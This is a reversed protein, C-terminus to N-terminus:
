NINPKHIELFHVFEDIYKQHLEKNGFIKSKKEEAHRRCSKGEEELMMTRLAKAISYRTFKGGDENREVKVGVKIEEVVMANLEQESQFPLLILPCGFQLSEIMSSWGCHTLFGGICKHELIKLQPAWSNWIIGRKNNSEIDDNPSNQMKLAWFYPCNSLELGMAIEIFEEDSLKVESGFAVYIVSRKEQEDLWKLITSWNEDKDDNNDEDNSQPPSPPLLGVPIVPKKFVSELIKLSQGEVEPCSRIAIAAAGTVIEQLRLADTVGSENQQTLFGYIPKAVEEISNSHAKILISDLCLYECFACFICFFICPIGLNSCIPPLWFPAFDYLVFHPTSSELFKTLPEQLGDFAKKLYPVIDYPVDLTSEANEPLNEVHPLPLEIFEVFPKLNSPLKPLRKINRPTSIFSIKHGKQAILKALEYSPIMHGFALWPFMAIHLKKNDNAQEAM